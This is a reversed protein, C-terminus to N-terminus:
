RFPTRRASAICLCAIGEGKGFATLGEGSTATIAVHCVNLGTMKAIEERMPDIVEALHPRKAEISFSLHLLEIDKLTDLARAVYARSDKIGTQCMDDAVRGLIREGSLGSIANVLAHLIVDADSNGMLPPADPILVGGLLLPRSKFADDGETMFRHSDQGIACFYMERANSM